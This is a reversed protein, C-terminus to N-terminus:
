KVSEFKVSKAEYLAAMFKEFDMTDESFTVPWYYILDCTIAQTAAPAGTLFTVVGPVPDGWESLGWDTGFTKAVGNVKLNTVGGTPNPAFVPETYGGFTRVLQFTTTVGDGIGIQQGAITNDDADLYLFPDFMGQRLNFFGALTSFESYTTGGILGQRLFNFTLEWQWRPYSWDAIRTRKGSMSEQLRTKFVPKRKVSWGLGALTPFVSTSM